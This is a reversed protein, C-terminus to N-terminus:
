LIALDNARHDEELVDCGSLRSFSFKKERRLSGVPDNVREGDGRRYCTDGGSLYDPYIVRHGLEV